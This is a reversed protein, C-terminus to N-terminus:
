SIYYEHFHGEGEPVSFMLNELWYDIGTLVNIEQKDSLKLTVAPHNKNGFIPIDSGCLFSLNRFKWLNNQLYCDDQMCEAPRVSEMDPLIQPLSHYIFKSELSLISRKVTLNEFKLSFASM